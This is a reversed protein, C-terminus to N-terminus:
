PCPATGHARAATAAPAFQSPVAVGSSASASRAAPSDGSCTRTIHQSHVGPPGHRSAMSASTSTETLPSHASASTRSAARAAARGARTCSFASVPRPRLPQGGASQGRSTASASRAWSSPSTRIV